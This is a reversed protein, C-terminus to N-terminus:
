KPHHNSIEVEIKEINDEVKKLTKELQKIQDEETHIEEETKEALKKEGSLGTILLRNGIFASVYVGTILLIITGVLFSLPGDIINFLNIEAVGIM